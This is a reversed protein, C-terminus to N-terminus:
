KKPAPTPAAPAPAAPAPADATEPLALRGALKVTLKQAVDAPMAGMIQALDDPKMAQAVPVAVDDPLGSFIPGAKKGLASYTKVLADIQAKQADDRDGLLSTIKSQLTQLQAIKADVRKETAALIDAQIQVQSERADLEARRRSMSTLIDAEAATAIQQDPEAYDRNAAPPQDNLATQALAAGDRVLGTGNLVLLAAGALVVAPLLRLFRPRKFRPSM